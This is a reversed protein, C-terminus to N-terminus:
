ASPVCGTLRQQQRTGVSESVAVALGREKLLSKTVAIGDDHTLQTTYSAYSTAVNEGTNYPLFAAAYSCHM